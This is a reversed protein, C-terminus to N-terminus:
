VAYLVQLVAVQKARLTARYTGTHTHAGSLELCMLLPLLLLLHFPLVVAIMLHQKVTRAWNSWDLMFRQTWRSLLKTEVILEEEEEDRRSITSPLCTYCYSLFLPFFSMWPPSFLTFMWAHSWGAGAALSTRRPKWGDRRGMTRLSSAPPTKSQNSKLVIIILPRNPKGTTIERLAPRRRQCCVGGPKQPLCGEAQPGHHTAHQQSDAQQLRRSVAPLNHRRESLVASDWGAGLVGGSLSFWHLM